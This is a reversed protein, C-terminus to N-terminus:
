FRVDVGCLRFFVKMCCLYFSDVRSLITCLGIHNMWLSFMGFLFFHTTSIKFHAHFSLDQPRIVCRGWLTSHIREHLMFLYLSVHYSRVYDFSIWRTHSCELFFDTTIIEFYPHFPFDKLGIVFKRAQYFLSNQVVLHSDLRSLNHVALVSNDLTLVNSVFSKNYSRRFTPSFSFITISDWM